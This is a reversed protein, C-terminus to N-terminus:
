LLLLKRSSALLLVCSAESLFSGVRDLQLLKQLPPSLFDILAENGVLSVLHDDSVVQFSESLFSVM